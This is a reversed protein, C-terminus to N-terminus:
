MVVTIQATRFNALQSAPIAEIAGLLAKRAEDASLVSAGTNVEFSKVKIKNSREKM